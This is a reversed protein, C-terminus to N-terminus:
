TRTIGTIKKNANKIFQCHMYYIVHRKDIASICIILAIKIYDLTIANM